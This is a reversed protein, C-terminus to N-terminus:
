VGTIREEYEGRFAKLSSIFPNAARKGLECLSETKMGASLRVLLDLDEAKGRGEAIDNLIDAM